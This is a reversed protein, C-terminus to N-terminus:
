RCGGSLGSTGLSAEDVPHTVVNSRQAVRPPHITTCPPKSLSLDLRLALGNVYVPGGSTEVAFLGNPLYKGERGILDKGSISALPKGDATFTAVPDQSTSEITEGLAQSALTAAAFVAILCKSKM